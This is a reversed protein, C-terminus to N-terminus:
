NDTQDSADKSKRTKDFHPRKPRRHQSRRGLVKRINEWLEDDSCPRELFAVAGARIAQVADRVTGRASLMIIPLDIGQARLRQQLELGSMGIM